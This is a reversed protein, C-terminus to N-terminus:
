AGLEVASRVIRMTEEASEKARATGHDLAEDLYKDKALFELYRERIGSMGTAVAASVQAKLEKLSVGALEQSLQQNSRGEVDFYSLLDVLNSVGPRGTLDESVPGLSDTLAVKIKTNIQEPTDTLMITARPNPDSKSMKQLPDQLSMVRKANSILTEPMVLHRGYAHNFNTVCERAFELHQRQDEGVPVHTARHVLIDAAQLIPYSFLGHKLASKIKEDLFSTDEAVSLKSKWQTMRSLYGMSANCSLIWMLESHAPVSSQYFIISRAPDLGVALLAALLERKSQKLQGRPRPVTIAHLDVISFLLKTDPAAEDQLKRWQQLAGLYNGLHPVGTPQIGSFVVKPSQRQAHLQEEVDEATGPYGKKPEALHEWKDKLREEVEKISEDMTKGIDINSFEWVNAKMGVGHYAHKQLFALWVQVADPHGDRIQIMRRMTVREFNEQSKKFIFHSKPVTWRETLRPLPVPGFAPLGLYYAARLAFDSFFELSRVSYSRLQLDCTPVGYEAERRLPQLYLAQLSRHMRPSQSEPSAAKPAAQAARPSSSTVSSKTRAQTSPRLFANQVPRAATLQLRGNLLHRAPRILPPASMNYKSKFKELNDGGLVEEVITRKRSKRTLRASSGDTKGEIITGVQSFEPIPDKRTDRKFHQKGLALVSRMRLIQLDRKLEPTLNTRPMHFFEPGADNREGKKTKKPEIKPVRLALKTQHAGQDPGSSALQENPTATALVELKASSVLAGDKAALRAESQALIKDVDIELDDLLAMPAM